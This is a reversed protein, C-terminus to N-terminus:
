LNWYRPDIERENSIYFKNFPFNIKKKKLSNIKEIDEISSCGLIIYKALNLSFIANIALEYKDMKFKQEYKKLQLIKKKLNKFNNLYHVKQFLLGQIFVSRIHFEIKYKKKCNILYKLKKNDLNFLNIPIQFFDFNYKKLYYSIKYVDYTSIGIKKIKGKKKQLNLYNIIKEDSNVFDNENHFMIYDIKKRKLKKLSLDISKKVFYLNSKKVKTNFTLFKTSLKKKLNKVEGIQKEANGYSPATDILKIRESKNIKSFFSKYTKKKVNKKLIGYNQDFQATGIGFYM